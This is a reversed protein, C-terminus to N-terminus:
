SYGYSRRQMYYSYMLNSIVKLEVMLDHKFWKYIAWWGKVFRLLIIPFILAFAVGLLIGTISYKSQNHTCFLSEDAVILNKGVMDVPSQCTVDKYDIIYAVYHKIWTRTKLAECDCVWPNNGLRLESINTLHVSM